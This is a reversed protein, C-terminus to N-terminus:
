VTLGVPSVSSMSSFTSGRTGDPPHRASPTTPIAKSPRSPEAILLRQIETLGTSPAIAATVGRSLLEVEPGDPPRLNTADLAPVPVPM